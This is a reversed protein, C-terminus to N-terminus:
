EVKSRIWGLAPSVVNFSINIGNGSGTIHNRVDYHSSFHKSEVVAIRQIESVNIMYPLSSNIKDMLIANTKPDSTLAVMPDFPVNCRLDSSLDTWVSWMLTELQKSPYEVPLGSEKAEKRGITYGHHTMSNFKKVISEVKKKDTMHLLLLKEALGESLKMSKKVLGIQTPNLEEVLHDLVNSNFDRPEYETGNDKKNKMGLDNEVFELYAKVDEVSFTKPPLQFNDSQITIQPDIPGLCSFPHMIIRDAGFSLVTAASQAVYPVLVDVEEFRERLLNIIRWAVIADGGQSVLLLDIKKSDSSTQILQECFEPISDLSMSGSNYNSFRTSYVILPRKRLREIKKYLKVRNEYTM